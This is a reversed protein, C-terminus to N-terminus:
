ARAASGVVGSARLGTGNDAPGETAIKAGGMIRIQKTQRPFM